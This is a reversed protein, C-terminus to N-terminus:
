VNRIAPLSKFKPYPVYPMTIGMKKWNEKFCPSMNNKNNTNALSISIGSYIFNKPGLNINQHTFIMNIRFIKLSFYWLSAILDHIKIVDM